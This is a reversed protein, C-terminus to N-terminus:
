ALTVHEQPRANSVMAWPQNARNLHLPAVFVQWANPTPLASCTRPLSRVPIPLMASIVALALHHCPLVRKVWRVPQKVRTRRATFQERRVQKVYRHISMVPLTAHPKTADISPPIALLGTQPLAHTTRTAHCALRHEQVSALTCSKDTPYVPLADNVPATVVPCARLPPLHAPRLPLPALRLRRTQPLFASEALRTVRCLLTMASDM